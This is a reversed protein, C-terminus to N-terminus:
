TTQVEFPYYNLKEEKLRLVEYTKIIEAFRNRLDELIVFLKKESPVELEIQIEWNGLYKIFQIIYPHTKCYERLENEKKITLDKLTFLLKYYTYGIKELDISIRFGQIINKKKLQKIRYRVIDTTLKLKNAIEIATLEANQSIISLIKKETQDLTNKKSVKYKFEKGIKGGKLYERSYTPSDLIMSMSKEHINKGFQNLVEQIFENYENLDKALFSVGFDWGGYCSTCWIVKQNNKCYNVFNNKITQNINRFRFLTNFHMFGLQPTNLVTYFHKIIGLRLMKQIRYNVADKSLGVKKAIKSSPQRADIDLYYLIKRDKVDLKIEDM